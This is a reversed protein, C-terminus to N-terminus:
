VFYVDYITNEEFSDSFIYGALIGYGYGLTGGILVGMVGILSYGGVAGVFGFLKGSRSIFQRKFEEDVYILFHNDDQFGGNILKLENLALTRM